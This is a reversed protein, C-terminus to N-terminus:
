SSRSPARRAVGDFFALQQSVDVALDTTAPAPLPPSPPPARPSLWTLIRRAFAPLLGDDPRTIWRSRYALAKTHCKRTHLLIAWINTRYEFNSNPHRGAVLKSIKAILGHQQLTNTHRTVTTECCGIMGAITARKACCLGSHLGLDIISRLVRKLLSHKRQRPLPKETVIEGLIAERRVIDRARQRRKKALTYDVEEAPLGRMLALRTHRDTPQGSKLAFYLGASLRNNRGGRHWYNHNSEPGSRRKQSQKRKGSRQRRPRDAAPAPATLAQSSDLLHHLLGMPATRRDSDLLEIIIHDDYPITYGDSTRIEGRIEGYEFHVIGIPRQCFFWIHWGGRPTGELVYDADYDEMMQTISWPLGQDIDICGIGGSPHLIAYLGNHALFEERTAPTWDKTPRKSPKCTVLNVKNASLERFFLRKDQEKIQTLTSRTAKNLM